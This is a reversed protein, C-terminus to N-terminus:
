WCRTAGLATGIAIPPSPVFPPLAAVGKAEIHHVVQLTLRGSHTDGTPQLVVVSTCRGIAFLFTEAVAGGNSSWRVEALDIERKLLTAGCVEAAVNPCRLHHRGSTDGAGATAVAEAVVSRPLVTSVLYRGRIFTCLGLTNNDRRDLPLPLWDMSAAVHRGVHVSYMPAPLAGDSFRVGFSAADADPGATLPCHWIDLRTCCEEECMLSFWLGAEPTTPVIRVRLVSSCPTFGVFGRSTRCSTNPFVVFEQVDDPDFVRLPQHVSSVPRQVTSKTRPEIHLFFRAVSSNAIREWWVQRMGDRESASLSRPPADNAPGNRKPVKSVRVTSAHASAEAEPQLQQPPQPPATIEPTHEERMSPLSAPATFQPAAAFAAAEAVVVGEEEATVTVLTRAEGSRRSKKSGLGNEEEVEVAARDARKRSDKHKEDVRSNKSARGAPRCAVVDVSRAFRRELLRPDHEVKIEDQDVEYREPLPAPGVFCLPHQAFCLYRRRDACTVRGDPSQEAALRCMNCVDVGGRYESHFIAFTIVRDCGDCQVCKVNPGLQPRKGTYQQNLLAYKEFLTHATMAM